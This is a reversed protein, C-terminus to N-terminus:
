LAPLMSLVPPLSPPLFACQGIKNVESQLKNIEFILNKLETTRTIKMKVEAEAERNAANAEEDTTKLFRDFRTQDADLLQSTQSLRTSKTLSAQELRFSFSSTPFFSPLLM